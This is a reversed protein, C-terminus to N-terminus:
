SIEEERDLEGAAEPGKSDVMVYDEMRKVLVFVLVAGLAFAVVVIIYKAMGKPKIRFIM